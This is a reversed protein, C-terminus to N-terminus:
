LSNFVVCAYLGATETRLRKNGLSVPKFNNSLALQIEEETFDGEPGILIITAKAKQLEDKMELKERQLKAIEGEMKSLDRLKTSKEALEKEMEAVRDKSEEELKAKLKATIEKEAAKTEKELREAFLENEKKKKAEFEAKALELEENKAALEKAQQNAKLQFEQRISEELEHKLIDNVDIPAGCSPCKISTQNAM